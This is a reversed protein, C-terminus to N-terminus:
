LVVIYTGNPCVLTLTCENNCKHRAIDDFGQLELARYSDITIPGDIFSVVKEKNANSLYFDIIDIKSSTCSTLVISYSNYFWEESKNLQLRLTDNFLRVSYAYLQDINNFFIAMSEYHTANSITYDDVTKGNTQYNNEVDDWLGFKAIVDETVVNLIVKNDIEALQDKTLKQIDVELSFDDYDAYLTIPNSILNHKSQGNIDSYYIGAIDYRESNLGLFDIIIRTKSDNKTIKISKGNNFNLVNNYNGELTLNSSLNYDEVSNYNNNSYSPKWSRFIANINHNTVFHIRYKDRLLEFVESNKIPIEFYMTGNEEKVLNNALTIKKSYSSDSIYIKQITFAESGNVCNVRLVDGIWPGSVIQTNLTVHCDGKDYNNFRVSEGIKESVYVNKNEAENDLSSNPTDSYDAPKKWGHITINCDQTIIRFEKKDLNDKNGFSRMVYGNNQAETFKFSVPNSLCDYIKKGQLDTVYIEVVDYKYVKLNTRTISLKFSPMYTETVTGTFELNGITFTENLYAVYESNNSTDYDSAKKGSSTVNTCGGIVLTGAFLLGVILKKKM